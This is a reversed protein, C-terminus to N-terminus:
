ARGPNNGHRRGNDFMPGRSGSLRPYRRELTAGFVVVVLCEYRMGHLQLQSVRCYQRVNWESTRCRQLAAGKNRGKAGAM